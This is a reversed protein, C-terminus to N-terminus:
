IRELIFAARKEVTDKPVETIQYGFKEYTKVLHNHIELAQEFTEYREEDSTYIEKWPPLMFVNTYKHNICTETFIKPYTDGIFDMYAVVDPLGRDIFVINSEHNQADLFQKKRGELLLESFLLPNELFLQDIGDEQAKKIIERSIEPFCTHGHNVLENILTSKGSSPGGILVIIENKMRFDLIFLLLLNKKFILLIKDINHM